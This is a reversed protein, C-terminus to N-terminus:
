FLNHDPLKGFFETAPKLGKHRRERLAARRGVAAICHHRHRNRRPARHAAIIIVIRPVLRHRPMPAARNAVINKLLSTSRV